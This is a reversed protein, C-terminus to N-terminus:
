ISPEQILSKAESSFRVTWLDSFKSIGQPFSLTARLAMFILIRPMCALKRGGAAEAEDAVALITLTKRAEEVARVHEVCGAARVDHLHRGAAHLQGRSRRLAFGGAERVFNEAPVGITAPARNRIGSRARADRKEAQDMGKYVDLSLARGPILNKHCEQGAATDCRRASRWRAAAASHALAPRARGKREERLSPARSTTARARGASGMRRSRVPVGSEAGREHGSRARRGKFPTVSMRTPARTDQDHTREIRKGGAM